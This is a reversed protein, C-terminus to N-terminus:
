VGVLSITADFNAIEAAVSFQQNHLDEFKHIQIDYLRNVFDQAQMKDGKEYLRYYHM